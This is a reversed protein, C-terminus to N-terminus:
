CTKVIVAAENDFEDGGSSFAFPLIRIILVLTGFLVLNTVVSDRAKKRDDDTTESPFNPPLRRM